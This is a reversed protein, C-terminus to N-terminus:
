GFGLSLGVAVMAVGIVSAVLVVQRERELITGGEIASFGALCLASLLLGIGGGVLFEIM